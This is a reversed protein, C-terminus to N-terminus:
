MTACNNVVVQENPDEYVDLVFIKFAMFQVAVNPLVLDNLLNNLAVEEEPLLSEVGFKPLLKTIHVLKFLAIQRVNSYNIWSCTCRHILRIRAESM